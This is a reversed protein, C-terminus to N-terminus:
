WFSYLNVLSKEHWINPQFHVLNAYRLKFPNTKRILYLELLAANQDKIAFWFHQIIRSINLTILINRRTPRSQISRNQNQSIQNSLNKRSNWFNLWSILQNGKWNQKEIGYINMAVSFIVSQMRYEWRCNLDVETLAAPTVDSDIVAVLDAKSITDSSWNRNDKIRQLWHILAISLSYRSSSIRFTIKFEKKAKVAWSFSRSQRRSRLAVKM